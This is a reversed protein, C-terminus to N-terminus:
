NSYTMLLHCIRRERPADLGVAYGDEGERTDAPDKGGGEEKKGEDTETSKEEENLNLPEHELRDYVGQLFQRMQPDEAEYVHDAAANQVGFVALTAFLSALKIM